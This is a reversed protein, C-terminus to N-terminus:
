FLFFNERVAGSLGCGTQAGRVGAIGNSSVPDLGASVEAVNEGQSDSRAGERRLAGTPLRDVVVAEVKKGLLRGEKNIDDVENLITAKLTTESSRWRTGVALALRRDQDDGAAPSPRHASAMELATPLCREERCKGKLATGTERQERSRAHNGATDRLLDLGARPLRNAVDAAFARKKTLAM